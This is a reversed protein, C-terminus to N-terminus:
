GTKNKNSYRKRGDKLDKEIAESITSEVIGCAELFQATQDLIGGEVPLKSFM